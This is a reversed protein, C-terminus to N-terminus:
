GELVKQVQIQREVVELHWDPGDARARQDLPAVEDWVCDSNLDLCTYALSMSAVNVKRDNLRKGAEVPRYSPVGWGWCGLSVLDQIEGTRNTLHIAAYDEKEIM